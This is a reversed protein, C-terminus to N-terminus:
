VKAWPQKHCSDNWLTTYCCTSPTTPLTVTLKNCIERHIWCHLFKSLGDVDALTIPLLISTGKKSECHIHTMDRWHGTCWIHRRTVHRFCVYVTIMTSSISWNIDYKGGKNVYHSGHGSSLYMDIVHTFSILPPTNLLRTEIEWLFTRHRKGELKLTSGYGYITLSVRVRITVAVTVSFRVRLTVGTTCRLLKQCNISVVARCM